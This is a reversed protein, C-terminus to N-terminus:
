ISKVVKDLVESEAESQAGSIDAVRHYLAKRANYLRRTEAQKDPRYRAAPSNHSYSLNKLIRYFPTDLLSSCVPRRSRRWM